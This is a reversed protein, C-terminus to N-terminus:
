YTVMFHYTSMCQSHVSKQMCLLSCHRGGKGPLNQDGIIFNFCRRTILIFTEHKLLHYMSSYVQPHNQGLAKEKITISRKYLAEAEDYNGVTKLLVAINNLSQAVELHDKGLCKERIQLVQM